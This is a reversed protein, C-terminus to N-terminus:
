KRERSIMGSPRELDAARRVNEKFNGTECSSETVM